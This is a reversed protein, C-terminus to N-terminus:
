IRGFGILGVTKEFLESSVLPTWRGNQMALHGERLRKALNLMMGVAHDAVSAENGGPAITVVRGLAQAAAIDVTNYGVGRRAVVK